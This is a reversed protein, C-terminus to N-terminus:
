RAKGQALSKKLIDEVKNVISKPSISAIALEYNEPFTNGYISTPILPYKNRDALLANNSDQGFPYFGAYPHTVGWISLVNVGLMAAIHANGSDMAIMLSLNSIIDLEENQPEMSPDETLEEIPLQAVPIFCGVETQLMGASGAPKQGIAQGVAGSANVGLM